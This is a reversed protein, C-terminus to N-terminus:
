TSNGTSAPSADLAPDLLPIPEDQGSVDVELTDFSWHNAHKNGVVFIRGKGNPGSIPISISADGDANEFKISGMVFWGIHLPTGLKAVVAPSETARRVALQYPYSARFESAIVYFLGGAFASLLVLVGVVLLPVLWKWNREFWTRPRPPFPPAAFAPSPPTTM